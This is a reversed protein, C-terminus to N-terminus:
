FNWEQKKDERVMFLVDEKLEYEYWRYKGDGYSKNPDGINQHSYDGNFAISNTYRYAFKNNEFKFDGFDVYTFFKEPDFRKYFSASFKGDFFIVRGSFDADNFTVNNQNWRILDYTRDIIKEM